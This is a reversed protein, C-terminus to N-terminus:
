KIIIVDPYKAIENKFYAGKGSFCNPINKDYKGSSGILSYKYLASM